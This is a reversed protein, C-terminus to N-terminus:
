MMASIERMEEKAETLFAILQDSKRTQCVSSNIAALANYVCASFLEEFEKEVSHKVSLKKKLEELRTIASNEDYSFEVLIKEVSNIYESLLEKANEM